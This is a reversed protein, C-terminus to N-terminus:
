VGMKGSLLPTRTNYVPLKLRPLRRSSCSPPVCPSMCYTNRFTFSIRFFLCRVFGVLYGRLELADLACLQLALGDSKFVFLAKLPMQRFRFPM